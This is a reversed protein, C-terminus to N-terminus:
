RAAKVRIGRKQPYTTQFVKVRRAEVILMFFGVTSATITVALLNNILYLMACAIVVLALAGLATISSLIFLVRGASPRKINRMVGFLGTLVSLVSCLLGYTIYKLGVQLDQGMKTIDERKQTLAGGTFFDIIPSSIQGVISDDTIQSYYTNLDKQLSNIMNYSYYAAMLTVVMLVVGMIGFLPLISLSGRMPVDREKRAAAGYPADPQAYPGAPKGGLDAGCNPCFNSNDDTERGCNKCYM